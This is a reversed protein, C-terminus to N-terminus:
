KFSRSTTTKNNNMRYDGANNENADDNVEDRYCNWLSESAISYNGSNGLLNYM